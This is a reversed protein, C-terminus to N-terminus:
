RGIWEAGIHAQQGDPNGCAPGWPNNSRSPQSGARGPSQPTADAVYGDESDSTDPSPPDSLFVTHFHSPSSIPGIHLKCPTRPTGLMAPGLNTGGRDAPNSSPRSCPGLEATSIMQAPGISFTYGQHTAGSFHGDSPRDSAASDPPTLYGSFSNHAPSGLSSLNLHSPSHAPITLPSPLVLPSVPDLKLSLLPALRQSSKMSRFPHPPTRPAPPVSCSTTFSARHLPCSPNLTITPRSQTPTFYLRRPFPNAIKPKKQESTGLSDGPQTARVERGRESGRGRVSM